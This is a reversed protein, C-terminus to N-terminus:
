AYLLADRDNLPNHALSTLHARVNFTAGGVGCAADGDTTTAHARVYFLEPAALAHRLSSTTICGSRAVTNSTDASRMSAITVSHSLHREHSVFRVHRKAILPGDYLAVLLSAERAYLPLPVADALTINVNSATEDVVFLPGYLGLSAIGDCTSNYTDLSVLVDYCVVNRDYDLQVRGLMTSQSAGSEDRALFGFENLRRGPHSTQYSLGVLSVVLAAAVGVFVIIKFVVDATSESAESPSPM